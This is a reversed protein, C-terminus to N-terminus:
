FKVLNKLTIGFCFPLNGERNLLFLLKETFIKACTRDALAIMVVNETSSFQLNYSLILNIFLDPIQDELDTDPPNEISEFLFKIFDPGLIEAVPISFKLRTRQKM